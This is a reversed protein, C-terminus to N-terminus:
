LPLTARVRVKRWNEREVDLIWAEALPRGQKDWGGTVLLQPFRQGYNLCCAAHGGRQEPWPGGGSRNLKRWNQLFVCVMLQLEESMSCTISNGPIDISFYAM